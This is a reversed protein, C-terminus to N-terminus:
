RCLYRRKHALAQTAGNICGKHAAAEQARQGGAVMFLSNESSASYLRGGRLRRFCVREETSERAAVSDDRFPERAVVSDERFTERPVVGHEDLSKRAAVSDGIIFPM